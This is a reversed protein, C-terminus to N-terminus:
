TLTYSENGVMRMSKLAAAMDRFQPLLRYYINKCAGGIVAGQITVGNVLLESEYGKAVFHCEHIILDIATHKVIDMM